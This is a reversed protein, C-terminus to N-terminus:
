SRFEKLKKDEGKTLAIESAQIEQETYGLSKYYEKRVDALLDEIMPQTIRDTEYIAEEKVYNLIDDQIKQLKSVTNSEKVRKIQENFVVGIIGLVTGGAGPILAYSATWLVGFLIKKSAKKNYEKFCNNVAVRVAFDSVEKSVTETQETDASSKKTEEIKLANDVCSRFM